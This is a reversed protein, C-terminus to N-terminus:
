PAPALPPVVPTPTPPPAVCVQSWWGPGVKGEDAMRACAASADDAQTSVPQAKEALADCFAKTMDAAYPGNRVNAPIEMRGLVDAFRRLVVVVHAAAEVRAQPSAGADAVQQQYRDRATRVTRMTHDVWAQFAKTSARARDRHQPDFDLGTPGRLELVRALEPDVARAAGVRVRRVVIAQGGCHRADARAVLVFSPAGPVPGVLAPALPPPPPPLPPPPAPPPSDGTITARQEPPAPDAPPESTFEDQSPPPIGPAPAPEAPPTPDAASAPGPTAPGAAPPAHGCAAVAVTAAFAAIKSTRRMADSSLV